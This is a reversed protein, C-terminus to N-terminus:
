RMVMTQITGWTPRISYKTELYRVDDELKKAVDNKKWIQLLAVLSNAARTANDEYGIQTSSQVARELAKRREEEDLKTSYGFDGM